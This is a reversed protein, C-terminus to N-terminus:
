ERGGRPSIEDAYESWAGLVRSLRGNVLLYAALDLASRDSSTLAFDTEIQELRSVLNPALAREGPKAIGNEALLRRVEPDNTNVWPHYYNDNEASVDRLGLRIVVPPLAVRGAALPGDWSLRSADPGGKAKVSPRFDETVGTGKVFNWSLDQVMANASELSEEGQGVITHEWAYTNEIGAQEFKSGNTDIRDISADIFIVLPLVGKLRPDIGSPAEPPQPDLNAKMQTTLTILGSNDALGGDALFIVRGQFMIKSGCHNMALNPYAVPFASSAYVADALSISDPRVRCVDLDNESTFDQAARQQGWWDKRQYYITDIYTKSFVFRVHNAIDFSNIYLAPHDPLDALTSGQFLTADYDDRALLGRNYNTFLFKLCIIPHLILWPSWERKRYNIAMADLYKQWTASDADASELDRLHMAFYAAALSGGSVSSVMDFQGLLDEDKDAEAAINIASHVRHIERLIAATFYAARSGGGSSALGVVVKNLPPYTFPKPDYLDIDGNM